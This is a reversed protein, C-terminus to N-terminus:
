TSMQALNFGGSFLVFLYATEYDAKQKQSSCGIIMCTPVLSKSDLFCVGCYTLTLSHLRETTDSEEVTAFVTAWWAGRDVPNELCSYQLLNGNEEEPSRGLGPISGPDGVNYTSVKSDSAM